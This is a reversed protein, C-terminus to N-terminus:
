ARHANAKDALWVKRAKDLEARGDSVLPAGIPVVKNGDKTADKALVAFAGSVGADDLGHDGLKATVVEARIAADTKGDTVIDAKIAKATTVLAARDSVRKEIAAPELEAKADALQKELATKEGTLTSVKADAADRAENAATIAADKKDLVARVATEDALSVPLGDVIITGAMVPKEQKIDAIIAPNADCVPWGDKIRCESGARGRDVLAVHNGRIETQRAHYATGDPAVGDGWIIKSTYGNSLERKGSDVADIAAADMLVLDFALYEGDRMAGMVAGRAHSKWNDKTVAESPHDDTIPKAIFSGVSDASFVETEDRYVKVIDGPKFSAPVGDGMESALYDYVGVRAAKARFALYGDKTRKPADLTLEDKFQM